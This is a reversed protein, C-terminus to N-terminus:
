DRLPLRSRPPPFIPLIPWPSVRVKSKQIECFVNNKGSARAEPRKMPGRCRVGFDFPGARRPRRHFNQLCPSNDM